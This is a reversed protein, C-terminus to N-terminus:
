IMHLVICGYQISRYKEGFDFNRLTIALKIRPELPNRYFTKSKAIRGEAINRRVDKPANLSLTCHVASRGAKTRDHTTFIRCLFDSMGIGIIPMKSAFNEIHM